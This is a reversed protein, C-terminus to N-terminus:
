ERRRLAAIILASLALTQLAAGALHSYEWQWRLADWNETVTSWNSTQQNAPFTFIWFVIQAAVLCVLAVLAPSRVGSRRRHLFIVALIGVLEAALVYGLQDWGTYARQAIFYDEQSMTIKNPLAFAHALAGGLALGTAIVAVFFAVNRVFAYFRSGGNSAM